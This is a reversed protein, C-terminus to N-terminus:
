ILIAKDTIDQELLPLTFWFTSGKGPSSEVGVQGNHQEIITRCLHLGVGLGVGTGSQIEIGAVRYFCEWVREHEGPPLGPGEDHVSVCAMQGNVSLCVTVPQNAPSYKLANTLYNTVVQVLRNADGHVPVDKEPAMELLIIRTAEAQQLDEVAEQVISVLNCRVKHLKLAQTQVRAIDLLDDVLRDQITIQSRARELLAHVPAFQRMEDSGLADTEVLRKV